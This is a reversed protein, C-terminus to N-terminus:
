HTQGQQKSLEGLVEVVASSSSMEAWVPESRNVTIFPCGGVGPKTQNGEVLWRPDSALNNIISLNGLRYACRHVFSKPDLTGWGHYWKPIKKAPARWSTKFSLCICTCVICAKYISCGRGSSSPNHLNSEM